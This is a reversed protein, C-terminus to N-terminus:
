VTCNNERVHHLLRYTLTLCTPNPILDVVHMLVCMSEKLEDSCYRLLSDVYHFAFQLLIEMADSRAMSAHLTPPLHLHRHLYQKLNIEQEDGEKMWNMMFRYAHELYKFRSTTDLLRKFYSCVAM